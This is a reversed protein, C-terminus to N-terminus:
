LRINKEYNKCFEIGLTNMGEVCYIPDSVESFKNQKLRLISFTNRKFKILIYSSKQDSTKRM